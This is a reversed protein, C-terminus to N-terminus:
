RFFRISCVGSTALPELEHHDSTILQGDTKRAMAVAFADALSLKYNAKIWAADQWFSEDMDTRTQIGLSQLGSYALLAKERGYKRLLWYYIETLNIAHAYILSDPQTLLDEVVSAGPEDFLIAIM